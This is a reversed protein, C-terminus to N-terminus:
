NQYQTQRFIVSSMPKHSIARKIPKIHLTIAYMNNNIHLTIAYIINNNHLTIDYINNNIHLTIFLLMSTTVVIVASDDCNHPLNLPNKHWNLEEIWAPLKIDVKRKVASTLEQNKNWSM